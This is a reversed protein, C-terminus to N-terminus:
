LIALLEIPQLPVITIGDDGETQAQHLVYLCLLTQIFGQVTRTNRRSIGLPTASAPQRPLGIDAPAVANAPIFAEVQERRNSWGAHNSAKAKGWGTAIVMRQGFGKEGSALM